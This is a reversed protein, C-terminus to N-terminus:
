SLWESTEQYKLTSPFSLSVLTTVDSLVLCMLSVERVDFCLPFTVMMPELLGRPGLQPYCPHICSCYLFKTLEQSSTTSQINEVSIKGTYM